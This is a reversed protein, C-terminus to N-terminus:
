FLSAGYDPNNALETLEELVKKAGRNTQRAKKALRRSSKPKKMGSTYLNDEDYVDYKSWSQSDAERFTPRKEINNVSLAISADHVGLALTEIGM